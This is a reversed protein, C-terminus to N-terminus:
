GAGCGRAGPGARRFESAPARRRSDIRRLRRDSLSEFGLAEDSAAGALMEDGCRSWAPPYCSRQALGEGVSRRVWRRPSRRGVRPEASLLSPAMILRELPAM